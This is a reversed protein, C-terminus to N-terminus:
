KKGFRGIIGSLLKYWWTDSSKSCLSLVANIVIIAVGGIATFIVQWTSTDTVTETAGSADQAFAIGCFAFFAMFVFMIYKM